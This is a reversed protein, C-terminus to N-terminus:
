ETDSFIPVAGSCCAIGKSDFWWLSNHGLEGSTIPMSGPRFVINQSAAGYLPFIELEREGTTQFEWRESPYNYIITPEGGQTLYAHLWLEYLGKPASILADLMPEAAIWRARRAREQEEQKREWEGDRNQAQQRFQKITERSNM